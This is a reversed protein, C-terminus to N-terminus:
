YISNLLEIWEAEDKDEIFGQVTEILEMREEIFNNRQRFYDGPNAAYYSMGFHSPIVKYIETKWTGIRADVVIPEFKYEM